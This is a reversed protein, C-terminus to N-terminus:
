APLPSLPLPRAISFPFPIEKAFRPVDLTGHRLVGVLVQASVLPWCGILYAQLKSSLDKKRSNVLARQSVKRFAHAATRQRLCGAACDSTM